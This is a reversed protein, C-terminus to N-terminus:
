LLRIKKEKLHKAHQVRKTVSHFVLLLSNLNSAIVGNVTKKKEKNKYYNKNQKLGVSVVFLLADLYCHFGRLICRYMMRILLRRLSTIGHRRAFAAGGVVLTQM